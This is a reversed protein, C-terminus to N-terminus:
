VSGSGSKPSGQTTAVIVKSQFPAVYVTSDGTVTFNISYTGTAMGTTKLNFIYGGTGGLTVDFRFDDDANANGADQLLGSISNSVYTVGIAHVGTHFFVFQQGDMACNYNSPSPPKREERSQDSDMYFSVNFPTASVVTVGDLVTRQVGPAGSDILQISVLAQTAFASPLVIHQMDLFGPLNNIPSAAVTYVNVTSASLTAPTCCWNRIDSLGLLSATHTAGASGTFVLATYVGSAGWYTNILTYVDTVGSVGVPMTISVTGNGGGSAVHGNWAQFGAANSTINFPIGGLTVSGSPGGPFYTATAGNPDTQPAIWTFNAQSSFNVPSYVTTASASMSTGLIALAWLAFFTIRHM